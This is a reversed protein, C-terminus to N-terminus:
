DPDCAGDCFQAITGDEMFAGVHELYVELKRVTAHAGNDEPPPLNGSALAEYGEDYILLAANRDTGDPPEATIPELGWVERPTPTVVPIDGARAVWETVMNSVQCDGVAEQLSVRVDPRGPLRDQALHEVWNLSDIPDFVLQLLSMELQLDRPDSYQSSFATGMTNWQVARQLMHTWGGGPVDLVGREFFPSATMIVLGQTGGNSIGMYHVNDGDILPTGDDATVVGSLEDAVLRGLLTQHVHSQMQQHVVTTVGDLGSGLIGMTDFLDDENFGIFNTTAAAMRWRQLGNNLSSWTPEELSSFFGHGFVMAPRTETSATVPITLMFEVSRVGHQAPLGQDDLVIAEDAGLYDPAEFTGHILRNEGSEDWADDTIAWGGLDWDVTSDQMALLTAQSQEASRTHFSWALVVDAPALGVGDIADNVLEFDSRQAEVTSSDTLVGDRLAEFAPSAAPPGSGDASVLGTTLIAVYGAGPELVDQPRIILAQEDIDEANLDLEVLLPVPEWSEARVLMVTADAAMAASPDDIDPLSGADLGGEFWALLAPARSFGDASALTAATVGEPMFADDLVLRRGTLTGPDAELYFDSPFPFMPVDPVLPNEGPVDPLGTLLEDGDPKCGSLLVSAVLLTAFHHRTM